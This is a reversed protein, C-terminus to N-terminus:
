GSVGPIFGTLVVCSNGVAVSAGKEQIRIRFTLKGIAYVDNDEAWKKYDAYLAKQDITASKQFACRELLYDHLIDQQDRYEAVAQKVAEPEGLSGVKQWEVCGRVLWTLIASSYKSALYEAYGRKRDAEPIEVTFPIKKLRYWISNSTDAIM